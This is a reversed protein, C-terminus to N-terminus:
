NSFVTQKNILRDIANLTIKKLRLGDRGGIGSGSCWDYSATNIVTGSNSFKKFVIFTGVTENGFRSGYDFGVLELKHFVMVNNLIPYGDNSFGSIPVGDYEGSPLSLIDGKKLGLGTLLPSTPNAIKFGNWGRDTQLGYGGRPFDAGISSLISHQLSADDWNVTKLLPDPIPDSLDKYCVMQHDNYRVQWWMTNASLILADKGEAVFRDFNRRAKSTWYESHGVIVLVSANEISSYEDLDYDSVYGISYNSLSSFWKLGEISQSQIPLPRLFSVASPRNTRDYLSKGGSGAYANVTNSPYVIMLDVKTISKVIFLIQNEILYIGSKLNGPIEIETTVTYGYGNVAPDNSSVQQDSLPSPVSFAIDGTLTYVDLRCLSIKEKGHLYAKMKEGPSYSTKDTYGHILSPSCLNNPVPAPPVPTPTPQPPPKVPVPEEITKDCAALFLLLFYCLWSVQRLYTQLTFQIRNM